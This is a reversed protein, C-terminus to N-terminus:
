VTLDNEAKIAIANYLLQQLVAAFVAIVMSAFVIVMGLLIVGPADDREGILYFVPMGVVYLISIAIACFKIRKLASVSLDSFAKAKDIYNLLKFAQYLAIYYPIAAGYMILFVFYKIYSINPYLDSTYDAINPVVFICLGIVPLGILIITLKLFLTTGQKM